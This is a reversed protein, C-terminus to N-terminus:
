DSKVNFLRSDIWKKIFNKNRKSIIKIVAVAILLCTYVLVRKFDSSVGIPIGFNNLFHIMVPVIINGSFVYFLAFNLGVLTFGITTLSNDSAHVGSFLIASFILFIAILYKKNVKFTTGFFLILNLLLGRFLLEEVIPAYLVSDFLLPIGMSTNNTIRQEILEQNLVKVEGYSM